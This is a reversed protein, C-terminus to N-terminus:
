IQTRNELGNQFLEKTCKSPMNRVITMQPDLSIVVRMTSNNIYNNNNNINSNNIYYYNNNNNLSRLM